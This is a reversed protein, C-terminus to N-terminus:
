AKEDDGLNELNPDTMTDPWFEKLAEYAARYEGARELEKARRCCWLARESLALNSDSDKVSTTKLNLDM